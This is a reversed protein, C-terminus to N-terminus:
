VHGREEVEILKDLYHSAKKLDVLGGKKETKMGSNFRGAYKIVNGLLFGTFQEPTMWAQMADWPQVPLSRYHDGDVQYCDPTQKDYRM